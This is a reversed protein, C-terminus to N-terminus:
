LSLIRNLKKTRGDLRKKAEKLSEEIDKFDNNNSALYEKSIEGLGFIEKLIVNAINGALLRNGRPTCHGFDGGFSDIFYDDYKSQKVVEKFVQENDVFTLGETADFTKKLSEINRMPYQVCVLKIGRQIVVEKLKQYNHRTAPYCYHLRYENAKIFLEESEKDKGQAMYDVALSGYLRDREFTDLNIDVRKTVEDFMKEAERHQGEVRYLWGLETFGKILANSINGLDMTKEIAKKFMEKANDYEGQARYCEGLEAYAWTNNPNIDLVKKFEEAAEKFRGPNKYCNGLIIHAEENSANEQIAKKLAEESKKYEEQFLYGEGLKTYIISNNPNKIIAKKYMEIAEKGRGNNRYYDGIAIVTKYDFSNIKKSFESAIMKERKSNIHALILKVLKYMRFDAIIRAYTKQSIVDEYAAAGHPVDNIGMMTIIM